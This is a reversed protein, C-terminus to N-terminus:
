RLSTTRPMATGRSSGLRRLRGQVEAREPWDAPARELAARLDALAGDRDGARERAIGRLRWAGPAAPDLRIAESFDAIAGDLDTEVRLLGRNSFARVSPELRVSADMDALALALDGRAQHVVSRNNHVEAARPVGLALAREYEALAGELDGQERLTNGWYFRILGSEPHVALAQRWLSISDRWVHCQRSALWGLALLGAACTV